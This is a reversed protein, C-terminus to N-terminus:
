KAYTGAKEMDALTPKGTLSIAFFVVFSTVLGPWLPDIAFVPGANAMGLGWWVLVVVLAAAM